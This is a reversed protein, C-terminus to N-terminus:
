QICFSAGGGRGPTVVRKGKPGKGVEQAKERLVVEMCSESQGGLDTMGSEGAELVKSM